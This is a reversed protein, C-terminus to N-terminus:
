IVIIISFIFTKGSARSILAMIDEKHMVFHSIAQLQQRLIMCSCTNNDCQLRAFVWLQLSLSSTLLLPQSPSASLFSYTPSAPHCFNPPPPRNTSIQFPLLLSAPITPEYRAHQNSGPGPMSCYPVAPDWSEHSRRWLKRRVSRQWWTTSWESVCFPMSVTIMIRCGWVIVAVRWVQSVSWKICHGLSM